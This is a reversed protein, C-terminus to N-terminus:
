CASCTLTTSSPASSVTSPTWRLRRWRPRSASPRAQTVANPHARPSALSFGPRGPEAGRAGAGPLGLGCPRVGRADYYAERYRDLEESLAKHQQETHGQVESLIQQRM